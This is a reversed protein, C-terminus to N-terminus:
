FETWKKLHWFCTKKKKFFLNNKRYSLSFSLAWPLMKGSLSLLSLVSSIIWRRARVLWKPLLYFSASFCAHDLAARGCGSSLQSMAAALLLVQVCGDACCSVEGSPVGCTESRWLTELYVTLNFSTRIRLCTVVSWLWPSFTMLPQVLAWSHSGVSYQM